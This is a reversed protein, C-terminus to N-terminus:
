VVGSIPDFVPAFSTEDPYVDTVDQSFPNSIQHVLEGASNFIRIVTPKRPAVATVPQIYASVVGFQDVLEVKFYYNGGNVSQGQDNDGLWAVSNGGNDLFGKFSLAVS